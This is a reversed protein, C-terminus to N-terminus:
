DELLRALTSTADPNFPYACSHQHPCFGFPFHPGIATAIRIVREAIMGTALGRELRSIGSQSIGSLEALRRQSLGAQRRGNRFRAGVIVMEPVPWVLYRSGKWPTRAWPGGQM